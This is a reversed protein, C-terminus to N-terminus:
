AAGTYKDLARQTVRLSRGVRIAKLRGQNIEGEIVRKSVGLQQAVEALSYALRRLSQPRDYQTQDM